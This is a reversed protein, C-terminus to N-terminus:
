RCRAGWRLHVHQLPAAHPERHPLQGQALARRQKPFLEVKLTVDTITPQPLKEFPLLAKEYRGAAGRARARRTATSCTPTTSSGAVWARGPWAAAGGAVLGAGGRLRQACGPWASACRRSPVAAGCAYALVVLVLAFASWYAQFWAAASGSAARGNMDSLPVPPRAPTPVPQARLGALECLTAVVYVLMVAWGIMKHPVLVQVFVSLV